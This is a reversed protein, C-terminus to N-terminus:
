RPRRHSSIGTRLIHNAIRTALTTAALSPNSAAFFLSFLQPKKHPPLAFPPLVAPFITKLRRRVYDELGAVNTARRLPLRDSFFGHGRAYLEREWENTGLARTIAARKHDDIADASRAAQRVLGSLSFLFWLDIARTQAIAKLTQWDVNMGYPDLFMVARTSRWNVHRLLKPIEVNADGATVEIARDRHEGRLAQLARVARARQEIFVLQDFPPEVGIAIKASGPHRIICEPAASTFFGAERAPVRETREGTGAFADFYWLQFKGRLARTFACSYESVLSLKLDTADSGFEHHALSRRRRPAMQRTTVPPKALGTALRNRNNGTITENTM